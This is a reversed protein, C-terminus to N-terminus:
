DSGIKYLVFIEERKLVLVDTCKVPIMSALILKYISRLTITEDTAGDIHALFHGLKTWVLFIDEPKRNEEFISM